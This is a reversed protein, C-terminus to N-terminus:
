GDVKEAMEVLKRVTNLNRGTGTDKLLRGLGYWLKSHGMGGPFHIYIERGDIRVEENEPKLDLIAERLEVAPPDTLFTILLKGPEIERRKAFPNRTLVDKLEPTTRVVVEPRFAFKKEIADEIRSAVRKVNREKTHFVVNGSQVYTQPDRLGLSVYLARLAEMKVMNNGGVNVGRLLSILVPM